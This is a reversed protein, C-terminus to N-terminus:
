APIPEELTTKHKELVQRLIQQHLKILQQVTPNKQNITYLQINGIKRTTTAINQKLMKPFVTYFTARGIESANIIGTATYDIRRGTILTDLIKAQPDYGIVELFANRESM